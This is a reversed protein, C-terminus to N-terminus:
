VVLSLALFMFGLGELRVRPSPVVAAGAFSAVALLVAVVHITLM